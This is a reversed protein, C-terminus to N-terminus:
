HENSLSTLPHYACRLSVEIGVNKLPPDLPKKADEWTDITPEGTSDDDLASVSNGRRLPPLSRSRRAAPREPPLESLSSSLRQPRREQSEATGLFRGREPSLPQGESECPYSGVETLYRSQLENLLGLVNERDEIGKFIFEQCDQLSILISTNRYLEMIIVDPWDLRIKKEFGFLNSYFLVASSSAYLRGRVRNHQCSVDGWCPGVTPGFLSQVIETTAPSTSLEVHDASSSTVEVKQEEAEEGRKAGGGEM